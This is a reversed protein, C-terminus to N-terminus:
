GSKQEMVDKDPKIRNPSHRGLIERWSIALADANDRNLENYALHESALTSEVVESGGLKPKWVNDQGIHYTSQIERSRFRRFTSGSHNMLQAIIATGLPPYGLFVNGLDLKPLINYPFIFCDHGPHDMVDKHGLHFLVDLDQAKLDSHGMVTQRNIAFASHGRNIKDQVIIYFDEHLIIDSNTYVVYESRLSDKAQYLGLFIDQIFPLERRVGQISLHPYVTATSRTLPPLVRFGKPIISQESEFTIAALEVSINHEQIAKKQARYMSAIALSQARDYPCFIEECTQVKYPNYIHVFDFLSGEFCISKDTLGLEVNGDQQLYADLWQNSRLLTSALYLLLAISVAVRNIRLHRLEPQVQLTASAIVVPCLTMTATHIHQQEAAVQDVNQHSTVLKSSHDCTV